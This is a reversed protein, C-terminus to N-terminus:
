LEKVNIVRRTIRRIKPGKIKGLSLIANESRV